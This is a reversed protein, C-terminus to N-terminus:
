ETHQREKSLLERLQGLNLGDASAKLDASNLKIGRSVGVLAVQQDENMESNQTIAMEKDTLFTDNGKEVYSEIIYRAGVFKKAGNRM